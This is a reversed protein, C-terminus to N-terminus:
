EKITVENTSSKLTRPKLNNVYHCAVSHNEGIDLLQPADKVCKEQAYPCRTHFKCGKPPNAPSPLDGELIQREVVASPDAVPAASLLAQTYPHLPNEYLKEKSGMEVFNGLYMVGVRTSIHEVVSLDHSIFIYSLGREDQLNMLLNIIQAQISVDLASVAEDCIVIKPNLVLSRAIGIRQRQGGSFEHPYRTAHYGALGCEEITNIVKERMDEKDKYLGNNSLPEAVIQGATMRPNLSSYPDQFIMQLDTSLKRREDKDMGVLEKGKYKVSGEVGEYLGLIARALTSKGCGSEGVIGLTEGPYLDFSVGDVAKVDGVNHRIFGGTIPFYKKVNRVELIPKKNEM